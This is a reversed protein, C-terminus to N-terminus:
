IRIFLTLLRTFMYRYLFWSCCGLKDPTFGSKFENPRALWRMCGVRRGGRFNPM